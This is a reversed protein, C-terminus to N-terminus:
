RETTLAEVLGGVYSYYSFSEVACNELGLNKVMGGSDIRGFLGLYGCACATISLNRICFGNGNLIGSFKPVVATSWQIEELNIDNALVYHASPRYWITGLDNADAIIYPDEETGSGAPERPIHGYSFSIAPYGGGGPMQWYDCTGNATENAFDWGANLFTNIDQMEATTKGTGCASTTQGSTNVDWFSATIYIHGGRGALGGVDKKGTVSGTSYCNTIMGSNAGVLGGIYYEGKVSGTAYCNSLPGGANDGV